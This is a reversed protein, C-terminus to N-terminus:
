TFLPYIFVTAIYIVTTAHKFRTEIWDLLHLPIHRSVWHKSMEKWDFRNDYWTPNKKRISYRMVQLSNEIAHSKRKYRSIWTLMRINNWNLFANLKSHRLRWDNPWLQFYENKSRFFAFLKKMIWDKMAFIQKFSECESLFWNFFHFFINIKWKERWMCSITNLHRRWLQLQRFARFSLLICRINQEGKAM